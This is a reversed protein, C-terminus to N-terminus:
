PAAAPWVSRACSKLQPPRKWAGHAGLGGTIQHSTMPLLTRLYEGSTLLRRSRLSPLCTRQPLWAILGFCVGPSLQAGCPSANWCQPFLILGFHPVFAACGTSSVPVHVCPCCRCLAACLPLVSDSVSRVAHPSQLSDECRRRGTARRGLTWAQLLPSSTERSRRMAATPSSFRAHPSPELPRRRCLSM